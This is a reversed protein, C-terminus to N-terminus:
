ESTEAPLQTIGAHAERHCNACILICNQGRGGLYEIAPTRVNKRRKSVARKITEARQAYTRKDAM